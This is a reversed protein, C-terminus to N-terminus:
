KKTASELDRLIRDAGDAPSAQPIRACVYGVVSEDITGSLALRPGSYVLTRGDDSPSIFFLVKTECNVGEKWAKTSAPVWGQAKQEEVRDFIVLKVATPMPAGNEVSSVTISRPNVYVAYTNDPNRDVLAYGQPPMAAAPLVGLVFWVALVCRIKM